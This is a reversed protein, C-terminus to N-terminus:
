RCYSLTDYKGLYKMISTALHFNDRDISCMIFHTNRSDITVNARFKESIKMTQEAIIKQDKRSSVRKTFM